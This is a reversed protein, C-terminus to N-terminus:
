RTTAWCLLHLGHTELITLAGYRARDPDDKIRDANWRSSQSHRGACEVLWSEISAAYCALVTAKSSVYRAKAIGRGRAAYRCFEKRGGAKVPLRLAGM